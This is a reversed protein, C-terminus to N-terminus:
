YRHIEKEEKATLEEETLGSWGIWLSDSQEHYHKLGTALGGISKKYQIGDSEKQVTVPLRNSIFITKSM